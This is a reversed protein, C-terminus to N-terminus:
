QTSADSAASSSSKAANEAMEKQLRAQIEKITAETPAPPVLGGGPAVPEVKPAVVMAATKETPKEANPAKNCASIGLSMVVIATLLTLHKM